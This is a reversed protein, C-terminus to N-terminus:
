FAPAVVANIDRFLRVSGAAVTKGARVEGTVQQKMGCAGASGDCWGLGDQWPLAANWLVVCRVGSPFGKSKAWV